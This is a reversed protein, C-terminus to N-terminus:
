LFKQAELEHGDPDTTFFHYINYKKNERPAGDVYIGAKVFEEYVEDVYDTVFTLMNGKKAVEMHECFGILNGGPLEYIRCTAQEMWLKLGLFNCYFEHTKEIDNTGNFHVYGNLKM